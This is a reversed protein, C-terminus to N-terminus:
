LCRCMSGLNMQLGVVGVPCSNELLFNCRRGSGVDIYLSSAGTM